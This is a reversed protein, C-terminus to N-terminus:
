QANGGTPYDSKRLLNNVAYGNDNLYEESLLITKQPRSFFYSHEVITGKDQLMQMIGNCGRMNERTPWIGRESAKEIISPIHVGGMCLINGNADKKAYATAIGVIVDNINQLLEGFYHSDKAKFNYLDEMDNIEPYVELGLLDEITMSSTGIEKIHNKHDDGTNLDFYLIELKKNLLQVEHFIPVIDSDSSVLVVKNIHPYQMMYKMCNIMLIIDSANKGNFVHEIEVHNKRLIEYGMDSIKVKQFDAFLRFSLLNDEAYREKIKTVVDYMINPKKFDRYNNKLTVYVNDYDVLVLTNDRIRADM